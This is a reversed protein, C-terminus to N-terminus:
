IQNFGTKVDIYFTALFQLEFSEGLIGNFIKIIFIFNFVQSIPGSYSFVGSVTRNKHIPPQVWQKVM